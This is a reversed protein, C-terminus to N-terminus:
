FPIEDEQVGEGKTIQKAEVPAPLAVLHKSTRPIPNGVAFIPFTWLSQKGRTESVLPEIYVEYVNKRDLFANDLGRGYLSVIAATESVVIRDGANATISSATGNSDLTKAPCPKILEIVLANWDKMEGTEKDTITAPLAVRGLLYGHIINGKKGINSRNRADVGPDYQPFRASLNALGAPLGNNKETQNAM